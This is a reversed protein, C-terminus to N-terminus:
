TRFLINILKKINYSAYIETAYKISKDVKKLINYSIDRFLGLKPAAIKNSTSQIDEGMIVDKVYHFKNEIHWHSRIGESIKCADVGVLDSVYISESHHEKINSLFYRRVYAILKISEWGVDLNNQRRYLYTERLELRGRVLSEEFFSSFPDSVIITDELASKLRRQNGKVKVLYHNGKSVILNLTKKVICPM